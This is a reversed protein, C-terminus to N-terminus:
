PVFVVILTNVCLKELSPGSVFPVREKGLAGGDTLVTVDAEPLPLAGSAEIRHRLNVVQDADPLGFAGRMAPTGMTLPYAPM